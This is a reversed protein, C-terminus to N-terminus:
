ANGAAPPRWVPPRPRSRGRRVARQDGVLQGVMAVIHRHDFLAVDAPAAGGGAGRQQLVLDVCMQQLQGLAVPLVGGCPGVEGTGLCDRRQALHGAAQLVHVELAHVAQVQGAAMAVHWAQHGLTGRPPADAQIRAPQARLRQPFAEVHVGTTRQQGALRCPDVGVPQGIRQQLAHAPTAAVHM